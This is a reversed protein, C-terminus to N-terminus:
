DKMCIISFCNKECIDQLEKKFTKAKITLHIAFSDTEIEHLIFGNRQAEDRLEQPLNKEIDRFINGLEPTIIGNKYAEYDSISVIYDDFNMNFNLFIISLKTLESFDSKRM